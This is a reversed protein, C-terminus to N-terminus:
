LAELRELAANLKEIQAEFDVRRTHQEEVVKAPAREVFNKNALKKDIGDIEARVKAQEKELRAKEAGIDIIDALPLAFTDGEHVIQVAGKPAADVGAIDSLRALRKLVDDHRALKQAADDGGGAFCWPYKQVRRCM